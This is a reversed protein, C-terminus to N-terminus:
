NKEKGIVVNTDGTVVANNGGGYVNGRIDAGVVEKIADNSVFKVKAKTADNHHPDGLGINVHTNGIVEAANGGGFINGIVGMAGDAHPHLVVRDEKGNDDFLSKTEGAYENSKYNPETKDFVVEDINVIPNGVMVASSGYGGGFINGISTFARVNVRPDHHPGSKIGEAEKQEDTL